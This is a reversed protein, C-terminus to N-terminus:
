VTKEKMMETDMWKDLRDWLIVLRRGCRISPFGPRRAIEYARTRNVKLKEALLDCDHKKTNSKM